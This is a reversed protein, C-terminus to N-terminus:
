IKRSDSTSKKKTEILKKLSFLVKALISLNQLHRYRSGCCPCNLMSCVVTTTHINVKWKKKDFTREGRCHASVQIRILSETM